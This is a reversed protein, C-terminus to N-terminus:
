AEASWQEPEDSHVLEADPFADMAAKVVPTELIAARSDALQRQENALLTPKAEGEGQTVTWAVGTVERLAPIIRTAFDPSLSATGRYELMPPDYRIIGVCDHMEQALHGKSKQWFAEILDEFSAPLSSAPEPAPAAAAPAQGPMASAAMPVGGQLMRALDSPDPMTAAHMVRLLAMECAEIPLAATAVEDHGKLMLQWLRHLPGFGIQSAWDALAGREEDSQGPTAIDRGAKVLTVAHVLELLGRMLSLPEVGLAYQDRVGGLLAATDGELLLGLLRRTSGRDSLGLMERVQAATVMPEGEGMEAHAIAQDLISLGDRASGEAAQAILSLADPEAAVQEAEVVHAFHGALMEAPIRRLDFRQCRSLVTVPVKNVETTAFLFKVHAPPEELTKLLANFANKSLMHVEDIIYIKYRASVAAYRVAEIIERVDDVGTHSAADMEVVDIHRGEAIAMCPECVGCPDITPGGQGDPGICNLAKAILRATSTKGVGRVGTMLFAHALRGRRIANGLTQVMADQGILERFNRPRYKRALVRYPQPSDSM